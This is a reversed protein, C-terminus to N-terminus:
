RPDFRLMSSTMSRQLQRSNDDITVRQPVEDGLSRREDVNSRRDSSGFSSNRNRSVKRNAKETKDKNVLDFSGKIDYYSNDTAGQTESIQSKIDQM